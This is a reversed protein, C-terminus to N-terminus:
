MIYNNLLIRTLKVLNLHGKNMKKLRAVLMFFFSDKTDKISIIMQETM